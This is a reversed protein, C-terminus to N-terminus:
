RLSALTAQVTAIRQGNPPHSGLFRNGPDPLRAFFGAGALADYGARHAIVTGLADAELEFDKSFTRAGVAAGIDQASRVTEPAAGGAAALAGLVLAGALSTQTQRPIHGLIHHAAEHGLVFAIEDASRAEAILGPTFAIVPRGAADLTQYANIGLEPRPDVLIAFDCSRGPARARCEAEAVPELRAVVAAFNEAAMAPSLRPAVHAPPLPALPAPPPALCASLAMVTALAGLRRVPARRAGSRRPLPLRLHM